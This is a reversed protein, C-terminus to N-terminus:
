LRNFAGSEIINVTNPINIENVATEHMAMSGIKSLNVPLLITKLKKDGSFCYMPIEKIKNPIVIKELEICQYFTMADMSVLSNPMTVNKLNACGAFAYSKIREVGEQMIVTELTANYAFANDGIEKVSGPIIITKLGNLNAFAGEGIKTVSDPITLTGNEDMLLLNGNSSLLEGEETIDYPNVEIGLSQAIKIEDKSKTNILLEGKIIELKEMYEDSISTIVTKINGTEGAKQTNYSLNTKGATLSGDLFEQNETLKSIKYLELEEKYGSLETSIKAKQAQTIIGNDGMLMAITVGALILLVIITIVLAILTIGKNRNM